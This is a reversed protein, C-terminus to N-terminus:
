PRQIDLEDNDYDAEPSACVIDAVRRLSLIPEEYEQKM